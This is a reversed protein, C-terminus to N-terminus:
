QQMRIHCIVRWTVRPPEGLQEFLEWNASYRGLMQTYYDQVAPKRILLADEESISKLDDM